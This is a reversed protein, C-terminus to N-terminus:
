SLIFTSGKSSNCVYIKPAHYVFYKLMSIFPPSLKRSEKKRQKKEKEDLSEKRHERINYRQCMLSLWKMSLLKKMRLSVENIFQPQNEEHLLLNM